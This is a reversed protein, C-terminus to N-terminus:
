GGVRADQPTIRVETLPAGAYSRLYLALREYYDEPPLGKSLRRLEAGAMTLVHVAQFAVVNGVSRSGDPVCVLTRDGVDLHVWGTGVNNTYRMSMNRHVLGLEDLRSFSEYRIGYPELVQGDAPFCERHIVFTCVRDFLRADEASLCSLVQLTRLSFSGPSSLEGALLRAWKERIDDDFADRAGEAIHHLAALSVPKVDAPSEPRPRSFCRVVVADLNQQRLRSVNLEYLHARAEVGPPHLASEDVVLDPASWGAPFEPVPPVLAKRLADLGLESRLREEVVKSETKAAELQNHREVVGDIWKKAADGFLFRLALALAGDKSLDLWSPDIGSVIVIM